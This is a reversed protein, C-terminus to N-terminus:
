AGPTKPAGGAPQWNAVTAIRDRANDSLDPHNKQLWAALAAKPTRGACLRPNSRVAQFAEIAARLEVPYDPDLTKTFPAPVPFGQKMCWRVLAASEVVTLEAALVEHPGVTDPDIPRYDDIGAFGKVVIQVAALTKSKVARDLEYLWGADPRAALSIERLYRSIPDRKTIARIPSPDIGALLCAAETLSVQEVKSWDLNNM